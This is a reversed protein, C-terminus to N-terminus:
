LATPDHPTQIIDTMLDYLQMLRPDGVLLRRQSDLTKQDHRIAPGTQQPWLQGYDMKKVTADALPRLMAFDIGHALAVEQALANVANGFNNVFVAALHAWRRQEYNLHYIQGSVTAFLEEITQETAANSGEICLPLRTYDMALDRVFTQPSWVVGYNRSLRKLVDAPTSGSPHLFIKNAYSPLDLALDYLADDNVALLYIESQDDLRAPKDIAIASVRQALLAAHDYERSLVQRISHGAGHLALALHTAVNGSGIISINTKKM